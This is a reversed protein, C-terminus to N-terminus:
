SPFFLSSTFIFLTILPITKSMLFLLCEASSIFNGNLIKSVVWTCRLPSLPNSPCASCSWAEIVVRESQFINRIRNWIKKNGRSIQSGNSATPQLRPLSRSTNSIFVFGSFYRRQAGSQLQKNGFYQLRLCPRVYWDQTINCASLGATVVVSLLELLVFSLPFLLTSPPSKYAIYQDSINNYSQCLEILSPILLNICVSLICDLM